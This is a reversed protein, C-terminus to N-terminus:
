GVIPKIDMAKSVAQELQRVQQDDLMPFLKEHKADSLQGDNQMICKILLDVTRDPLDVIRAIAKRAMDFKSVFQLENPLDEQITQIICEYLYEAALTYDMYAYHILDNGTVHLLGQSGRIDWEMVALLPKSYAELVTDYQKMNNVMVASIPFIIGDPTFKTKALIYHILFRHLRGNGDEFPHVFVFGFSIAAAVVVPSINSDLMRTLSQLLGQMIAAVDEPKPSIYHIKEHYYNTKEGVWNQSKRYGDVAAQPAIEKQLEILKDKDITKIAGAKKLLEAFRALRSGTIHEHEILWSSVTEKTYLYYIARERIQEPYKALLQSVAKDIDQEQFAVLKATKRVFPCFSKNGLLNDNIYQRSSKIPKAVYYDDSDLLDVYGAVALDDIDLKKESFTEFIYWIKRQPKGFPQERIFATLDAEPIQDFALLLIELNIGEHKLAFELNDFPSSPNINVAREVYYHLEIGDHSLLTKREGKAILYSRRFHPLAKLHFMEVLAQYGIPKQGLSNDLNSM